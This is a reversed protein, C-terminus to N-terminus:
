LSRKWENTKPDINYIHVNEAGFIPLLKDFYAKTLTVNSKNIISCLAKGVETMIFIPATPNEGANTIIDDDLQYKSVDYPVSVGQEGLPLAWSKTGDSMTLGVFNRHHGLGPEVILGSQSLMLLQAFNLKPMLAKFLLGDVEYDVITSFLIAAEAELEDVARLIKRSFTGPKRIEGALVKAWRQQLEETSAEEAYREFRNIFEENLKHPGTNDDEESVPNNRFDQLAERFVADKNAQIKLTKKYQNDLAREAFASDHEMKRVGYQAAAEILIVEGETKARRRSAIGELHANAIDVVGGCLRDFASLTRSRASAKLGTETLDASLSVENSLHDEKEM